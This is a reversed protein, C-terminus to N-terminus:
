RMPVLVLILNPELTRLNRPSPLPSPVLLSGSRLSYFKAEVTMNLCELSARSGRVLVVTLLTYANNQARLEKSFARLCVTMTDTAISPRQAEELLPVGEMLQLKM